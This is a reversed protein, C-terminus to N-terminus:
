CCSSVLGFRCRPRLIPKLLIRRARGPLLAGKGTRLTVARVCANASDAVYLTGEDPSLAVGYPWAFKAKDAEGDLLGRSGGGAVTAM